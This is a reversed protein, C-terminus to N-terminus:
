KYGVFFLRDFPFLVQGDSQVKYYKKCESLVDHEFESRMRDSPLRDLYPRLGTSRLFDIISEQSNLIHFYSTEWLEVRAALKNLIDYYYEPDKFTFFKSCGKTYNKWKHYGAATEIATNVPMNMFMPIQVAVAGGPNICNFFKPLLIEHHPIWQLASNSFILDYNIDPDINEANDVIWKQHPYYHRAKEIMSISSDLGVVESNPWRNVLIQTSNGPGCGIDIISGPEIIEIRSVLDIASQTRETKFRLYQEPNWDKM